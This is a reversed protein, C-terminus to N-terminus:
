SVHYVGFIVVLGADAVSWGPGGTDAMGIACLCGGLISETVRKREGRFVEESRGECSRTVAQDFLDVEHDWLHIKKENRETQEVGASYKRAVDCKDRLQM